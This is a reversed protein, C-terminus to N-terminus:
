RSPPSRAAGCEVSDAVRVVAAGQPLKCARGGHQLAKWDGWGSRSAITDIKDAQM